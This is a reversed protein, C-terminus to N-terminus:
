AESILIVAPIKSQLTGINRGSIGPVRKILLGEGHSKVVAATCQTFDGNIPYVDNYIYGNCSADATDAMVEWTGRM